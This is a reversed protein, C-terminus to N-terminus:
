KELSCKKGPQKDRCHETKKLRLRQRLIIKRRRIRKRKRICFLDGKLAIPIQERRFAANVCRLRLKEDRFFKRIGGSGNGGGLNAVTFCARCQAITKPM